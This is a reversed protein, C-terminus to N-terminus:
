IWGYHELLIRIGIAILVLGGVLEMGKGYAKRIRGGLLAGALAIGFTVTGIVVAPVMIDSTLVAFSIGAALSDISTAVSLLLLTALTLDPPAEEDERSELIMKVGIAALLAFAVWHDFPAIIGLVLTGAGWGLVLMGGQFAGFALAIRLANRIRGEGEAVGAGLAVAFCDMALGLAILLLDLLDM